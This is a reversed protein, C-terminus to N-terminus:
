LKSTIYKTILRKLKKKFVKLKKNYKRHLRKLFKKKINKIRKKTLLKIGLFVIAIIILTYIIIKLIPWVSYRFYEYSSMEIPKGNELIETKNEKKIIEIKRFSSASYDEFQAEVNFDYVGELYSPLFLKTKETKEEFNGFYVTDKGLETINGNKDLYFKIIVDGNINAMGKIYYTLDFFGTSTIPSQIELIKVDFLKVCKTGYCTYGESCDSNKTCEYTVKEKVAGGGGGGGAAGGGPGGSVATEGASYSTFQTVNFVFVNGSYSIEQCITTPCTLGNRLPEPNSYTIGYLTINASKNLEPYATSNIEIYNSSITIYSSLDTGNSLDINEKFVLKGKSSTEVTLDSINSVNVASMNTTEGSFSTTYIISFQRLESLITNNAVDTCNITYNYKSINLNYLSINTTINKIISIETINLLNNLNLTCNTINNRDTINLNITVNGYFGSNNMPYLITLNPSTTDITLKRIDSVTSNSYNDTTIIRWYYVGDTLQQSKNSIITSNGIYDSYYDISEFNIDDDIELIYNLIDEDLDVSSYWSYNTNNTGTISDNNPTFLSVNTPMSNNIFLISTSWNSTNCYLNDCVQVLFTYNFGLEYDSYTLNISSYYETGNNGNTINQNANNTSTKIISYPNIKLWYFSINLKDNDADEIFTSANFSYGKGISTTTVNDYLTINRFFPLTNNIFLRTSNSQNCGFGDCVYIGLSYNYGLKYNLATLNQTTYYMTGNIGNTINSMNSGATNNSIIISDQEYWFFSINLKQGSDLDGIAVSGNFQKAKGYSSTTVNDFFTINFFTPINNNLNILKQGTQNSLTFKDEAFVQYTYNGYGLNTTANQSQNIYFYWQTSNFKYLNSVYDQYVEEATLSRNWIKIEDLSGNWYRPSVFFDVGIMLPQANDLVAYGPAGSADLVGNVYVYAVGDKIIGVVHTWTNLDIVKTSVLENFDITNYPEACKLRFTPGNGWGVHYKSIIGQCANYGVPNIWASYTFNNTVDIRPNDTINIYQANGSFNLGLGYRGATIFNPPGILSGNSSYNSMDMVYTSNEGLVSRNDFNYRLVLTNDYLTFNTGNWNYILSNLNQEAISVNIEVSTNSTNAGNGPTPDVFDIAPRNAEEIIRVIRQETQNKVGSSNVSYATFTHTGLILNTFNNYYNNSSANFLAYVEQDSLSRNFILVEDILGNFLRDTAFTSRGIDLAYSSPNITTVSPLSASKKITGNIFLSMNTNNLVVVVHYWTGIAMIQDSLIESWGAAGKGFAFSLRGNDGTRLVYGNANGDAWDDKGVITGEWRNTEWENAYIWASITLRDAPNLINANKIAVFDGTGDFSFSKGFHGSASQAANGQRSGNNSYISLDTPETSANVDDMTMWLALDRDFDLFTYHDGDDSSSVNVFINTNSQISNNAPTIGTFNTQLGNGRNLILDQLTFSEEPEEEPIIIEEVLIIEEPIETINTEAITESVNSPETLTIGETENVFTEGTENSIFLGTYNGMFYFGSLLLVLILLMLVYKTQLISFKNFQLELERKKASLFNTGLYVSKVKGKERKSTYFYFTDRVRKKHM